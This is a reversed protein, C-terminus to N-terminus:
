SSSVPREAQKIAKDDMYVKGDKMKINSWWARKTYPNPGCVSLVTQGESINGVHGLFPTFPSTGYFEVSALDQSLAERLAKKTPVDTGDKTYRAGVNIYSMIM